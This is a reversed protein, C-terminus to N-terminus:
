ISNNIRRFLGNTIKDMKSARTIDVERSLAQMLTQKKASLAIIDSWKQITKHEYLVPKALSERQINGM